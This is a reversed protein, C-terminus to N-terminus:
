ANDNLDKPNLALNEIVKKIENLQSSIKGDVNGIDSEIVFGGAEISNDEEFKIKVFNGENFMEDSKDRLNRMDAPNCKILLYNAGILKQAVNTLNEILPSHKEIEHKVIKKSILLAVSIVMESFNNEYGILEQDIIQLREAFVKKEKLLKENFENEYKNLLEEQAAAFGREYAEKTKRQLREEDSENSSHIEELGSNVKVNVRKNVSQMKIVNCM